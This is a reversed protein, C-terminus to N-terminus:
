YEVIVVGAAGAGSATPVSSFGGGGGGYAIGDRATNGGTLSAGQGLLSAGGNGNALNTAPATFIGDGGRAGTLLLTGASGAGGVGGPKSPGSGGGAGGTASALAGFSSTNGTVGASPSTVGAVSAGVTVAYPTSATV